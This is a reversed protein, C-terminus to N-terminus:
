GNGPDEVTALGELDVSLVEISRKRVGIDHKILLDILKKGDILTIPAAGQAFADKKAGRAFGSTTVITGRVAGFKFLSGRLAAVDKGQITRKHRKVQVVERVSTVGLEIEAVVDVGGDGSPGTVKVNEYDMAELVQAVLHEFAIPDMQLLHKHLDERVTAERKRSLNRIAQLEDDPPSPRVRTLYQLGTDTVTYEQRERDVLGRDLLNRLRRRLTDRITSPSRFGSRRKLFEAWPDVLAGFRASGSDALIMLLEIVGEQLDLFAETEGLEHDIFDRGRETLRLNGGGGDVLLRYKQSLVWHGATHRPNISKGSETWIAQALKRDEGDLKNPIWSDPDRWDVPNQPNGRLRTLSSHLRTVHSRTFGTWIRLLHRVEGYVPFWPVRVRRANGDPGTRGTQEM